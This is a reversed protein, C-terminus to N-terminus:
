PMRCTTKPVLNYDKIAKALATAVFQRGYDDLHMRYADPFHRSNEIADHLDIFPIGLAECAVKAKEIRLTISKITDADVTKELMKMDLPPTFFLTKVALAQTKETIAQITLPIKDLYTLDETQFIQYITRTEGAEALANLKANVARESHSGQGNIEKDSSLIYNYFVRLPPIERKITKIKNLWKNFGEPDPPFAYIIPNFEIIILGAKTDRIPIAELLSSYAFPRMGALSANFVSLDTSDELFTTISKQSVDTKFATDIVSDGMLLIPFTEPNFDFVLSNIRWDINYMAHEIQIGLAAILSGALTYFLISFRKM